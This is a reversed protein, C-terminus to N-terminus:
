SAQTEAILVPRFSGNSLQSELNKNEGGTHNVM